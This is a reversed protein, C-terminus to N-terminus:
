KKYNKLQIVKAREKNEYKIYLYSFVKKGLHSVLIHDPNQLNFDLLGLYWFLDMFISFVEGSTSPMSEISFKEEAKMKSLFKVMGHRAEKITKEGKEKPLDKTLRHNWAYHFVINYKEEDSLKLFNISKDALTLKENEVKIIKLDLGLKHFFDILFFDKQNPIKKKTKHKNNLLNNIGLLNDKTIFRKKLTVPPNKEGIYLIFKELDDVLNLAKENLSILHQMNRDMLFSDNSSLRNMYFFRNNSITLIEKYSDKYIPDKKSLFRLYKKLSTIYSNLDSKSDIFGDEIAVEFFEELDIQDLDSLLMGTDLLYYEFINMLNSVHKKVTNSNKVRLYSIFEGLEDFLYSELDDKASVFDMIVESYIRYVNLTNRKLYEEISSLSSNKRIRNFDYLIEEIFDQRTSSPLHNIDGIFRYHDLVKGVRSLVLEGVGIMNNLKPEWLLYNSNTLIDKVYIHEDSYELIEYLSLHSKARSKLIDIEEASLKFPSNELFSQIFTKNDQYIYDASVWLNVALTNEEQFLPVQSKFEDLLEELSVLSDIYSFLKKDVNVQLKNYSNYNQNQMIDEM